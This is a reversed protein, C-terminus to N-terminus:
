GRSARSAARPCWRRIKSKSVRPCAISWCSTAPQERRRRPGQGDIGRRPAYEAGSGRHGGTRRGSHFVAARRHPRQLRGTRGGAAFRDGRRHRAVPQPRPESGSIRGRSRCGDVGRLARGGPGRRRCRTQDVPRGQGHRPRRPDDLGNGPDLRTAIQGARRRHGPDGGQHHPAAVEVGDGPDPDGGRRAARQWLRRSLRTDDQRATADLADIASAFAADARTTDGLIALAAGIQARAMPSGFDKLKTDALYKLDGVPARGARALVYLAYAM